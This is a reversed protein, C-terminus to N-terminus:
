YLKTDDEWSLRGSRRYWNAYLKMEPPGGVIQVLSDISDSKSIDLFEIIIESIPKFKNLELPNYPLAILTETTAYRLALIDIDPGM